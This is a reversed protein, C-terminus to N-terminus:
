LPRPLISSISRGRRCYSIIKKKMFSEVSGTFIICSKEIVLDRLRGKLLPSINKINFRLLDLVLQEPIEKMLLMASLQAYFNKSSLLVGIDKKNFFKPPIRNLIDVGNASSVPPILEEIRGLVKLKKDLTLEEIKPILKLSTFFGCEKKNFILEDMANEKEFLRKDEPLDMKRYLRVLSNIDDKCIDPSSLLSHLKGLPDKKFINKGLFVEEKIKETETLPFSKQILLSYQWLFISSLFSSIVAVSVLFIQIRRNFLLVSDYTKIVLLSLLLFFLGGLIPRSQVIWKLSFVFILFLTSLAPHNKFLYIISNKTNDWTIIRQQFTGYPAVNFLFAGIFSAGIFFALFYDSPLFKTKILSEKKSIFIDKFVLINDNLKDIYFNDKFLHFEVSLVLSLLGLTIIIKFFQFIINFSILGEKSIPANVSWKSINKLPYHYFFVGYMSIYIAWNMFYIQETLNESIPAFLVYGIAIASCLVLAIKKLYDFCYLKLLKIM